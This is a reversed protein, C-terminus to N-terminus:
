LRNKHVISYQSQWPTWPEREAVRQERFKLKEEERVQRSECSHERRPSAERSPSRFTVVQRPTPKPTARASGLSAKPNVAAPQMRPPSARLVLAEPSRRSTPTGTTVFSGARAPPTFSGPERDPLPARSLTVPLRAHVM